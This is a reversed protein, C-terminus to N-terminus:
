IVFFFFVQPYIGERTCFNLDEDNGRNEEEIDSFVELGLPPFFFFVVNFNFFAKAALLINKGRTRVLKKRIRM